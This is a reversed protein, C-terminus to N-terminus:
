NLKEFKELFDQLTTRLGPVVDDVARDLNRINTLLGTYKGNKMIYYQNNDKKIYEVKVTENKEKNTFVIRVEPSGSPKAEPDIDDAWLSLAGKYLNRFAATVEPNESDKITRGQYELIDQKTDGKVAQKIDFVYNKNEFWIELKSLETYSPSYIMQYLMNKLPKDLESFIMVSFSYVFKNDNWLGYYLEGSPDTDGLVIKHEKGKLTLTVEYKPNELGYEELNKVDDVVEVANITSFSDAFVRADGLNLNWQIPEIVRWDYVPDDDKNDDDRIYSELIYRLKGNEVLRIKEFEDDEDKSFLSKNVFERLESTLYLGAGESIVYVDDKDPLKVYTGSTGVTFNGVELVYETDDKMLVTVVAPSDFGLQDLTVGELDEPELKRGKLTAMINFVTSCEVSDLDISEDPIYTWIDTKTEEDDEGSKEYKVTHGIIVEDRGPVKITLQKADDKNFKFIEVRDDPSATPIPSNQPEEKKDGWLNMAVVSLGLISLVVVLAIIRRRM